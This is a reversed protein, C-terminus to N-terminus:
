SLLSTAMGYVNGAETHLLRLESIGSFLSPLVSRYPM